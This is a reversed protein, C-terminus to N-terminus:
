KEYPVGDAAPPIARGVFGALVLMTVVYPTIQLFQPPIPVDLIQFRTGLADAFGFLLGGFFAGAPTWKGFIMAALAIFGRGSTMNDDFSGATELTFWAGGLGAILGGIIVAIYRTLYVNIGVTDAAHPHEGVARIRLGWSTHFIVYYTVVLLIFMMYFIPKSNFLVPGILPISVLGPIPIQPLTERGATTSLLYQRRIYGTLGIALINIVTGSIIQNTKFTISLWAHLLAMLGGSAIAVFTSVLLTLGIDVLVPQLFILATIGLCAGTLMMGEIAINVVGARESWLGAMAGIVVPTALRLSEGFITMVNTQKGLTVVILVTPVLLIFGVTTWSTQVIDERQRNFYTIAGMGGLYAAFGLVWWVISPVVGVTRELVAIAALLVANVLPLTVLVSLGTLAMKIKEDLTPPLFLALLGGVLFVLAIFVLWLNIPVDTTPAKELMEGFRITAVADPSFVTQAALTGRAGTLAM